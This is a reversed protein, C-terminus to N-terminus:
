ASQAPPINLRKEIELVRSEVTGLRYLVNADTGDLMTLHKQAQTYGDIVNVIRTASDHTAKVLRETLADMKSDIRSAVAGAKSDIRKELASLEAKTAPSNGNHESM